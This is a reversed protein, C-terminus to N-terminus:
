CDSNKANEFQKIAGTLYSKAFKLSLPRMALIYVLLSFAIAIVIQGINLAALALFPPILAILKLLNIILKEPVSLKGMAVSLIQQREKISYKELETFNKTSFNLPM